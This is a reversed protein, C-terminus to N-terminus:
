LVTDIQMCIIILGSVEKKLGSLDIPFSFLFSNKWFQNDNAKGVLNM